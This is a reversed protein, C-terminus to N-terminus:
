FTGKEKTDAGIVKEPDVSDFDYLFEPLLKEIKKIDDEFRKDRKFIQTNVVSRKPNLRTFQKTHDKSDLGVFQEVKKVTEEYHYIFDEFRLNMIRSDNDNTGSERVYRFWKCWSEVSDRPFLRDYRWRTKCLIYVDRPDRDIVFVKLDDKFYRLCDITNSSPVLQDVVMYEKNDSNLVKMLSHTYEQTANIFKEESPHSCYTIEKPLVSAKKANMKINIKNFISIFYYSFRSRNALDFAWFGKYKFDTLDEIYKQSIENYKGHFYAEYKKNFWTGSNFKVLKVFRKLATGSVERNHNQVLHYELDRVGDPEHIFRFEFENNPHVTDYESMLDTLASSGTGFYSACTILKM